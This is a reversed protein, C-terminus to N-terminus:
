KILDKYIQFLKMEEVGWNYKELVAKKGNQGMTEAEQPHATIYEIAEAIEKPELPNVCIGCNNGEVIEKWLPFNSTIIPLGASMYEFMKNPQADIHNPLPHFTVIGAISRSMVNAVGVRDLFGLENVKQWGGYAKVKEEVSKESFAGVLNLRTQSTFEMAHVVEKIGRIQAIGGVYCVEDKKESWPTDNSLEGLIPFNNVDISKKNIKLFKDRIYPTATIIYDFKKCAYKEYMEFTKSLLIKAPKNLYPKGLLQKPLDEHADFIVKKGLKQLKLGIPILEPDHLHYIDSDLEAAKEFVKKVTKTMRSLRGGVKAGVDVINVGNKSEYGKGDAVVLSLQYEKYTAM